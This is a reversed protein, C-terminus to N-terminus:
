RDDARRTTCESKHGAVFAVRFGAQGLTFKRV